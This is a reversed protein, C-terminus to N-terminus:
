DLNVWALKKNEQCRSRRIRCHGSSEHSGLKPDLSRGRERM